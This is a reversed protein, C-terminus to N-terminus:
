ETANDKVERLVESKSSCHVSSLGRKTQMANLRKQANNRKGKKVDPVNDAFIEQSAYNVVRFASCRDSNKSMSWLAEGHLVTISEM